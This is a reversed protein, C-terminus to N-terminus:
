VVLQPHNLLVIGIISSKIGVISPNIEGGPANLTELRPLDQFIYWGAPGTETQRMYTPHSQRNGRGTIGCCHRGGMRPARHNTSLPTPFASSRDRSLAYPPTQRLCGIHLTGKGRIMKYSLILTLRVLAVVLPCEIGMNYNM